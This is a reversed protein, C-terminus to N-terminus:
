DIAEVLETIREGKVWDVVKEIGRSTRCLRNEHGFSTPHTFTAGTCGARLVRSALGDTCFLETSFFSDFFLDCDPEFDARVAISRIYAPTLAAQPMFREMQYVSKEPDSVDDELLPQMIMYSKSRVLAASRSDDIPYFRVVADDLAMAQRMRKSVFMSGGWTFFDTDFDELALNVEAAPSPREGIRGTYLSMAFEQMGEPAMLFTITLPEVGDAGPAFRLHTAFSGDLLWLASM